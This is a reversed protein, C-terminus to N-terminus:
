QTFLRRYSLIDKKIGANDKPLKIGVKIKKSNTWFTPSYAISINEESGLLFAPLPNLIRAPCPDSDCHIDDPDPKDILLRKNLHPLYTVM